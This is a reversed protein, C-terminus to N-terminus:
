GPRSAVVLVTDETAIGACVLFGCCTVRGPGNILPTVPSDPPGALRSHACYILCGCLVVTSVMIVGWLQEFQYATAVQREGCNPGMREHLSRVREKLEQDEIAGPMM